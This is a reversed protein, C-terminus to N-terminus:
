HGRISAGSWESAKDRAPVRDAGDRAITLIAWYTDCWAAAAERSIVPGLVDTLVAVLSDGFRSYHRGDIGLKRHEAVIEGPALPRGTAVVQQGREILMEVLLTAVLESEGYPELGGKAATLSMEMAAVIEDKHAKLLPLSGAVLHRIPERIISSM